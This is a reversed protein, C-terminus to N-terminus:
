HFTSDDDFYQSIRNTVRAPIPAPISPGSGSVERLVEDVQHNTVQSLHKMIGEINVDDPDSQAEQNSIFSNSLATYFGETVDSITAIDLDNLNDTSVAEHMALGEAEAINALIAHITAARYGLTAIDVLNQLTVKDSNLVELIHEYVDNFENM